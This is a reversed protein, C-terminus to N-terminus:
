VNDPTLDRGTQGELELQLIQTVDALLSDSNEIARDIVSGDKSLVDSLGKAFSIAVQKLDAASLNGLGLDQAKDEISKALSLQFDESQLQETLARKALAAPTKIVTGDATNQTPSISKNLIPNDGLLAKDIQEELSKTVANSVINSLKTLQDKQLKELDKKLGKIGGSSTHALLQSGIDEATAKAANAEATLTTIQSNLNNIVSQDPSSKAQESQLQAQLTTIQATKSDYTSLAQELNAFVTLSLLDQGREKVAVAVNSDDLEAKKMKLFQLISSASFKDGTIEGALSPAQLPSSGVQKVADNLRLSQATHQALYSSPNIVGTSIAYAISANVELADDTIAPNANPSLAAGNAGSTITTLQAAGNSETIFFRKGQSFSAPPTALSVQNANLGPNVTGSAQNIPQISPTANGIPSIPPM